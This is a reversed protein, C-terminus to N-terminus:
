GSRLPYKATRSADVSDFSGTGAHLSVFRVPCERSIADRVHYFSGLLGTGLDPFVPDKSQPQDKRKLPM